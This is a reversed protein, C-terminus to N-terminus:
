FGSPWKKRFIPYNRPDDPIVEIHCGLMEDTSTPGFRVRRPPSSPNRPNDASNDYYAVLDLRTGKPLAVPKAFAYQGQWNFDWDNIWLLTQVTGDPRIAKLWMERLLYHAHPMVVYAHADEPLTTSATVVHRKEGPLIDIRESALPIGAILRRLPKKSLYIGVSSQDTEPKGTPHYHIFLVLDSRAKLIWGAGEPQFRPVTGPTWEWIAPQRIDASGFSAFGPAPDAADRQRSNATPDLFM